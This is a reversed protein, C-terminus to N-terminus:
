RIKLYTLILDVFDNAMYSSQLPDKPVKSKVTFQNKSIRIIDWTMGQYYMKKEAISLESKQEYYQEYNNYGGYTGYVSLYDYKGPMNTINLSGKDNISLLITEGFYNSETVDYKTTTGNQIQESLRWEGVLQYMQLPEENENEGNVNDKDCATIVSFCVMCIAFVLLKNKITM